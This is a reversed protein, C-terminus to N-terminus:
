VSCYLYFNWFWFIGMIYFVFSEEDGSSSFLSSVYLVSMVIFLIMFCLRIIKPGSDIDLIRLALKNRANRADRIGQRISSGGKKKSSSTDSGGQKHEEGDSQEEGEIMKMIKSFKTKVISTKRSELLNSVKGSEFNEFLIFVIQYPNKMQYKMEDSINDDNYKNRKDWGIAVKEFSSIDISNEIYKDTEKEDKQIVKFLDCGTLYAFHIKIQYLLSASSFFIVYLFIFITFSIMSGEKGVVSLIIGGIFGIFFAFFVLIVTIITLVGTDILEYKATKVDLESFREMKEGGINHKKNPPTKYIPPDSRNFM